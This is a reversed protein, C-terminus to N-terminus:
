SVKNQSYFSTDYMKLFNKTKVGQIDIELFLM